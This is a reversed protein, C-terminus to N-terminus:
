GYPRSSDAPPADTRHTPLSCSGNPPFARLCNSSTSRLSAPRTTSCRQTTEIAAHALVLPVRPYRLAVDALADMPPMGRGAHILIPIRADAAADFISAIVATDFGFGQARPHLKFGRAGLALCREAEALADDAPDLRCFPIIRGGSEAAWTLVRDNPTRYAPDREPDHLAFACAQAHPDIDDLFGILGPLDLSQGDEDAGLHTHADIILAGTPVLRALEKAVDRQAAVVVEVPTVAVDDM